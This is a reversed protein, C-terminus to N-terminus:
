GCCGVRAAQRQPACCELEAAPKCLARRETLEIRVAGAVHEPLGPEYLRLGANGPAFEVSLPAPGLGPLGALCRRLIACLKGAAMHGETESDQPGDLLQLAAEDWSAVRGGCDISTIAARKLETVHYGRAIPGAETEFLVPADGPMNELARLMEELTM